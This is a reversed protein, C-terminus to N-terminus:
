VKTYFQYKKLKFSFILLFKQDKCNKEKKFKLKKLIEPKQTLRVHVIKFLIFYHSIM